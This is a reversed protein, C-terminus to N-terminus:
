TPAMHSSSSPIRLNALSRNNFSSLLASRCSHTNRSYNHEQHIHATNLATLMVETTHLYYQIDLDIGKAKATQRLYEYNGFSGSPNQALSLLNVTTLYDPRSDLGLQSMVMVLEALIDMNGRRINKPVWYDLVANIYTTDDATLLSTTNTYVLYFVEHTIAYQDNLSLNEVPTRKRTVSANLLSEMRYPFTWGLRNYYFRFAMRQWIGRIPLHNNFRQHVTELEPLYHTM